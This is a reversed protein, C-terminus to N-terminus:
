DNSLLTEYIKVIKKAWAELDFTKIVFECAEATKQKKEAESWNLVSLVAERLAGPKQNDYFASHPIVSLEKQGPINSAVIPTKIYAAEVLACCFGEERSASLFIDALAYYAAVDLRPPVLKIWQPLYGFDRSISEQKEEIESACVILLILRKEDAIPELERIAIDVGKREYDFGFMCIIRNNNAIDLAKV